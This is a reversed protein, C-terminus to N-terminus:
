VASQQQSNEDMVGVAQQLQDIIAQTEQAAKELQEAKNRIYGATAQTEMVSECLETLTWQFVRKTLNMPRVDAAKVVTGM